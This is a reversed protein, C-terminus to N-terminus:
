GADLIELERMVSRLKDQDAPGLPQVPERPVGAPLGLLNLAAKIAAPWTGTGMLTQYIRTLKFHLRRSEECPKGAALDRIRSKEEVFLEPGTSIFGRAGLALGPLLFHCPGILVSIREGFNQIIHTVHFFDRSAEKVGVVPVADCLAAFSPVDLNLGTRRPSNYLLIPLAAAKHVAVFRAVIEEITAKLVYPQPTTMLADVGAAAAVEAFAITQRATTASAGM